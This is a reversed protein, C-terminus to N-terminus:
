EVTGILPNMCKSFDNNVRILDAYPFAGDKAFVTQMGALRVSVDNMLKEKDNNVAALAKAETDAKVSASNLSKGLEKNPVPTAPIAKVSNEVNFAQATLTSEVYSAIVRLNKNSLSAADFLFDVAAKKNIADQDPSASLGVIEVGLEPSVTFLASYIEPHYRIYNLSSATSEITSYGDSRSTPVNPGNVIIELKQLAEAMCQTAVASKMYVSMQVNPNVYIRTAGTLGLLGVMSKVFDSHSDTAAGVAAISAFGLTAQDSRAKFAKVRDHTYAYTCSRKFLKDRASEINGPVSNVYTKKDIWCKRQFDTLGDNHEKEKAQPTTFDDIADPTTFPPTVCGSVFSVSVALFFYLVRNM